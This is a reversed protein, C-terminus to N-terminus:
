DVKRIEEALKAVPIGFKRVTLENYASRGDPSLTLWQEAALGDLTFTLHLRNGLVEGEVASDADTLTGAYRGPAIQRIVWERERAPKDGEHITQFLYITDGDVRGASEVRVNREGGFITDLLGHGELRGEFFTLPDFRPTTAAAPEDAPIDPTGVCASLLTLIGLPLLARLM